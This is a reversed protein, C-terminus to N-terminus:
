KGLPVALALYDLTTRKATASSTGSKQKTNSSSAALTFNTWKLNGYGAPNQFNIRTSDPIMSIGGMSRSEVNGNFRSEGIGYFSYPSSTGEQSFVVLSLLLCSSILFKKIM